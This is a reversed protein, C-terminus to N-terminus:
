SHKTAGGSLFDAIRGVSVNSWKGVRGCGMAFDFYHLVYREVELIM